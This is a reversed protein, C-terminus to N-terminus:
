GLFQKKKERIYRESRKNIDEISVIGRSTKKQASSWAINGAKKGSSVGHGVTPHNTNYPGIPKSYVSPKSLLNYVVEIKEVKQIRVEGDSPPAMTTKARWFM